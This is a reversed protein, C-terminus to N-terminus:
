EHPIQKGTPDTQPNGVAEDLAEVIEPPLFHETRDAAEHLHDEPYGLDSLFSEYVRHRHMLDRAADEGQATLQGGGDLLSQRQLGRTARQQQATSLNSARPATQTRLAECSRWADLLADERQTTQAVRAREVKRVVIGGRPSFLLALSFFGGAAITMAGAVSADWAWALAYGGISSAVGLGVSLAVMTKLDHTLLYATAPPVVLMAVVLIAGVPEFSGVTALSVLAMLFLHVASANIGLSTALEPDFSSLKLEKWFLTVGAVVVLTIALMQWFARPGIDYGNWVMTDLPSLEIVGYLVCDTDLDVNSAYRSILIVGLAFLGTFTVGIAADSQVRATRQLWQVLLATVVGLVAAGIFMPLSSRSGSVLFALAIGPLVAHSIADGLMAMRRLVLFSGVLSCAAGVLAGTLIIWLASM